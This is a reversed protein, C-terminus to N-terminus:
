FSHSLGISLVEKFQTRPGKNGDVDTIMIDEDYILHTSINANLWKNVKMNIMAQWDVDISSPNKLYDSFLELKTGITVNKFVEKELKMSAKAGLEFRINKGKEVGFSGSDALKQDMVMTVRGTLPSFNFSLYSTPKYELGLGLTTYAPAFFGSIPTTSDVKYDFGDAFQTKFSFSLSYFLKETANKGYLSNFEIRDDTKMLKAQGIHSYGLAMDLSNDWIHKEKKYNLKYNFLGLANLANQGGAAWNTFQSQSFNIGIKGQSKWDSEGETQAQTQLGALSIILALLLTKKM